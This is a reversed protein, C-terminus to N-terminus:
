GREALAKLDALGAEFDRGIMRDMDVFVGVLKAIFPSAGQMAWTVETADGRPLVTFEVLNHGEFPELMDLQMTVKSPAKSDVIRLRGKGIDKNGEFEYAAGPGRAPGGYAGKVNPDKKEYPNWTNFRHLDDILAHVAAPPAKIRTSRQVRFIDPRSAAYLLLAALAAVAVFATTKIM